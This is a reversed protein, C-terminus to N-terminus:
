FVTYRASFFAPMVRIRVAGSMSGASRSSSVAAESTCLGTADGFLVNGTVRTKPTTRLFAGMGM